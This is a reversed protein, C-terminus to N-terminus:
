KTDCVVRAEHGFSEWFHFLSQLFGLPSPSPTFTKKSM